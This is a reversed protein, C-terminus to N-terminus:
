YYYFSAMEAEQTLFFLIFISNPNEHHLIASENWVDAM